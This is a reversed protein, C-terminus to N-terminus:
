AIAIREDTRETVPEPADLRTLFGTALETADRGAGYLHFDPRVLVADAALGDLWSAYVGDVDEAVTVEPVDPGSLAVLDIGLDQLATRTEGPLVTLSPASRAILAGPGGFVDDFLAPARGRIRVRGQRALHGGAPGTHVGPGLPPRPPAPPKMGAAWEAIMRTDRAAAEEPDSICIVKGLDMSFRVFAVVHRLRESDYTDLLREGALGRLVADLKWGLNMVDRVGAGLGQGAFPPMLHAADGALLVRGERWRTAWGAQFTYVSHRELEANAPTIGYPALLEWAKGPRNLEDKSEHPLRMFEWRRRGPGGPVMTSPRRVDCSQAAVHPFELEPDPKVDVVLWDYFYGEDHWEIGAWRRIQSNAGDAGVVWRATVGLQEGTGAARIAATATDADQSLHVAEWGRMVRVTPLGGIVEDLAKELSPQHFFYTNYWGSEGRGSWDVEVLTRGEGDRWVYMDDYPQTIEPITDPALGASQLIRAFDSCHTVARPLPYGAHQRDVVVVAHGRRGLQIALLKGVPGFGVILVDASLSPPAANLNHM